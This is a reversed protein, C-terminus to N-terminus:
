RKRAEVFETMLWPPATGDDVGFPNVLDRRYRRGLEEAATTTVDWGHEALGEALGTYSTDALLSDMDIGSRRSLDEVDGGVVQDFALTSGAASLADVADILGAQAGADLYPLLGEALWATPPDGGFGADRLREAWDVSLDAGVPTVGGSGVVRRKFELVEARDLEFVAFGPPLRLRLARTDLGAGFLVAQRTGAAAASVLADDYFRTRMGIYRSGHLHLAETDTVHEGEAPWTTRMPLGSGAADFLARAYPDDILRDTRTSEVARAAALGLATVGAGAFPDSSTM